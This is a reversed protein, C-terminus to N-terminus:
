DNRCVALRDAGPRVQARDQRTVPWPVRDVDANASARARELDRNSRRAVRRLRLAGQDAEQRCLGEADVKRKRDAEVEAADATRRSTQGERELQELLPSAVDVVAVLDCGRAHNLEVAPHGPDAADLLLRDAGTPSVDVDEQHRCIPVIRAVRLAVRVAQPDDRHLIKLLRQM